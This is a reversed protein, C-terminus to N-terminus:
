VQKDIVRDLYNFKKVQRIKVDGINLDYRPSDTKYVVMHETIKLISYTQIETVCM